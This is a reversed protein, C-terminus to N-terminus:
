GAAPLAALARAVEEDPYEYDKLKGSLYNEYASLDFHGHGTLCFVIVRSRGEERAAIAEDIAAQIAHASEPAPLIGEAQTFQVAAQF